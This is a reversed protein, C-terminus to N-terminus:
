LFQLLFTLNRLTHLCIYNQVNLLGSDLKEKAAKIADEEALLNLKEQAIVLDSLASTYSTASDTIDDLSKRSVGLNEALEDLADSLEDTTATGSDVMETYTSFSNELEDIENGKARGNDIRNQLKEDSADIINQIGSVILSALTAAIGIIGLASNIMEAASVTTNATSTIAKGFNSASMRAADLSARANERFLKFSESMRTLSTIISQSKFIAFLSIALPILTKIGGFIKIFKMLASIANLVGKAFDIFDNILDKSLASQSMETFANKLNQVHAEISDLYKDNAESLSGESDAMLGMADSAESFNEM